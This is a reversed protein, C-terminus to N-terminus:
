TYKVTSVIIIAGFFILLFAISVIYQWSQCRTDFSYPGEWRSKREISENEIIPKKKIISKKKILPKKEEKKKESKKEM